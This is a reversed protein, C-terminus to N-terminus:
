NCNNIRVIHHGQSSLFAGDFLISYAIIMIIKKKYNDNNYYCSIILIRVRPGSRPPALWQRVSICECSQKTDCNTPANEGDTQEM